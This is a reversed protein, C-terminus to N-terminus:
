ARRPIPALATLAGRPDASALVQFAMRATLSPTIRGTGLCLMALDDFANQHNRAARLGANLVTDWRILRSMIAAHCHHAGFQRRMALRYRTAATAPDRAGARGADLGSRIAYYIGEGSIPNILSAADGALLIRGSSVVQSSTSLPLRHARLTDPDPHAAPMLRRLAALLRRRDTSEGPALRCGYGVNAPGAASPFRWAYALGLGKDLVVRPVPDDDAEEYGRIAVAIERRHQPAVVARRVVSEAGDAGIVVRAKIDGDVEVHTGADRVWRVTQRRWQAGAACAANRLREDFVRRPLITMAVPLDRTATITGGASRVGLARSARYGRVLAPADVGQEALLDLADVLVGDGCCKDRPFDSRDLMLVSASSREALAAIAAAAGSPGSGIVVVDWVADAMAM